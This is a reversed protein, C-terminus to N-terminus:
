EVSFKYRKDVNSVCENLAMKVPSSVYFVRDPDFGSVATGNVEWRSYSVAEGSPYQGEPLTSHNGESFGGYFHIDYTMESIIRANCGMGKLAVSDEWSGFELSADDAVKFVYRIFIVALQDDGYNLPQPSYPIEVYKGAHGCGRWDIDSGVLRGNLYTNHRFLPTQYEDYVTGDGTMEVHDHHVLNDTFRGVGYIFPYNPSRFQIIGPVNSFMIRLSGPNMYDSENTLDTVELDEHQLAM